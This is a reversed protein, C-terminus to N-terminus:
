PWVGSSAAEVATEAMAVVRVAKGANRAFRIQAHLWPGLQRDPTLVVVVDALLIKRHQTDALARMGDRDPPSTPAAYAPTLVVSGREALLREARDLEASHRGAALLAVIPPRARRVTRLYAAIIVDVVEASVDGVVAEAAARAARCAADHPSQPHLLITRM